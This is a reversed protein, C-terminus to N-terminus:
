PMKKPSINKLSLVQRNCFLSSIILHFKLIYDFIQLCETIYIFSGRDKESSSSYCRRDNAGLLFVNADFRIGRRQMIRTIEFVRNEQKREVGAKIVANWAVVDERVSAVEDLLKTATDIETCRACMYIFATILYVESTLEGNENVLYKNKIWIGEQYDGLDACAQIVSLLIPRTPFIGTNSIMKHFLGLAVHPHENEVYGGIMTSWSIADRLIMGDFLKDADDLCGCSTYMAMLSNLVNTNAEFGIETTHAHFIKGNRLLGLDGCGSILSVLTAETPFIGDAGRMKEYLKIADSICGALSYGSIMANWAVVDRVPMEDFVRRANEVDGCKSYLGILGTAIVVDCQLGKNKVREEVAFGLEFEFLHTCAAIVLYFTQKDPYCGSSPELMENFVELAFRPLGNRLYGKILSNWVLTKELPRGSGRLYSFVKRASEIDQFHFYKTILHSCIYLNQHLGSSISQAHLCLLTNPSRCHTSISNALSEKLNQWSSQTSTFSSKPPLNFILKAFPNPKM